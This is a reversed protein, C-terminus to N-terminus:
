DKPVPLLGAKVLSNNEDDEVIYFQRKDNSFPDSPLKPKKASYWYGQKWNPDNDYNSNDQSDDEMCFEVFANNDTPYFVEYVEYIGNNQPCTVGINPGIYKVKMKHVKRQPVSQSMKKM